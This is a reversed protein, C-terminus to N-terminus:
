AQEKTREPSALTALRKLELAVQAEHHDGEYHGQGDDGGTARWTERDIMQMLHEALFTARRLADELERVRAEAAQARRKWEPEPVGGMDWKMEDRLAALAEDRQAEVRTLEREYEAVTFDSPHLGCTPCVDSM